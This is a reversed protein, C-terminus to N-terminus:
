LNITIPLYQKTQKDWKLCMITTTNGGFLITMCIGIWIPDGTLLLYDMAPDYSHLKVRMKAIAEKGGETTWLMVAHDAGAIVCDGLSDNGLMGWDNVLGQHGFTAPVPPLTTGRYNSYKFDKQKPIFPLKGLKM